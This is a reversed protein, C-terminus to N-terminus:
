LMDEHITLLHEAISGLLKSYLKSADGTHIQECCIASMGYNSTIEPTHHINLGIGIRISQLTSGQMDLETLCGALKYIGGDQNVIIDNPLKISLTTNDRLILVSQIANLVSICPWMQLDTYIKDLDTQSFQTMNQITLRHHDEFWSAPIRASLYLNGLGTEWHRNHQGHFGEGDLAIALVPQHTAFQRLRDLQSSGAYREFILHHWHHYSQTFTFIKGPQNSKRDELRFFNRISSDDSEYVPPVSIGLYYLAESLSSTYLKM